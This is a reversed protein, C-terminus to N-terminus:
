LPIRGNEGTLGAVPAGPTTGVNAFRLIQPVQEICKGCVYVMAGDPVVPKRGRFHQSLEGTSSVRPQVSRNALVVQGTVLV